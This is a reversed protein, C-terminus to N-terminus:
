ECTVCTKLPRTYNHNLRSLRNKEALFGDLLMHSARPQNFFFFVIPAGDWSLDICTRGNALTPVFLLRLNDRFVGLMCRSRTRNESQQSLSCLLTGYLSLCIHVATWFHYLLFRQSHIFLTLYALLAQRGAM